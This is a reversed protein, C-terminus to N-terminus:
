QVQNPTSTSGGSDGPHNHGNYIQRDGSMTRTGDGVEGSAYISGTISIDGVINVGGSSIIETIAGSPLAVRWIHQDRDYSFEAGDEHKVISLDKNNSPAAFALSYLSGLVVGQALDGSPSLVLVQENVELASWSKDGGARKELWPLWATTNESFRIKLQAKQYDAESVTGVRILNSLRREIETLEFRM